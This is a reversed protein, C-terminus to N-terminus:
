EKLELFVLTGPDQQSEPIIKKLIDPYNLNADKHFLSKLHNKEILKISDDSGIITIFGHQLEITSRFYPHRDSDTLTDCDKIRGDLDDNKLHVSMLQFHVPNFVSLELKLHTYMLVTLRMGPYDNTIMKIAQSYAKTGDSELTFLTKLIGKIETLYEHQITTFNIEYILSINKSLSIKEVVQNASNTLLVSLNGLNFESIRNGAPNEPFKIDLSRVIPASSLVINTQIAFSKLTTLDNEDYAYRPKKVSYLIGVVTNSQILPVAIMSKWNLNLMQFPLTREDESINFIIAAEGSKRVINGLCCAEPRDLLAIEHESLHVSAIIRSIESRDNEVSLWCADSATLSCANKVITQFVADSGAKDSIMKSVQSISLIESTVRDFISATPLRFLLGIFSAFTYINIFVLTSLVFGKVTTSFAYVPFLLNSLLLYLGVPLLLISLAFGVYKERKNLVNTWSKYFGIVLTIVLLFIGVIWIIPSSGHQFVSVREFTYRDEIFNFIISSLIVASLLLRYEFDSFRNPRYDLLKKVFILIVFLISITLMTCFISI